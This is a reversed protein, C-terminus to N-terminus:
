TREVIKLDRGRTFDAHVYAAGGAAEGIAQQLIACRPNEGHIHGDILQIPFQALASAYYSDLLVGAVECRFVQGGGGASRKGGEDGHVDGEDGDGFNEGCDDWEGSGVGIEQDEDLRLEFEVPAFDAFAADDLVFGQVAFGDLADFGGGARRVEVNEADFGAVEGAGFAVLFEEEVGAVQLLRCRDTLKM